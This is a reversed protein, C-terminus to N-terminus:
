KKNAPITHIGTFLYADAQATNSLLVMYETNQIRGSEMNIKGKMKIMRAGSQEEYTSLNSM